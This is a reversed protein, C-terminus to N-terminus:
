RGRFAGSNDNFEGVLKIEPELKINYKKEVESQVLKMLGYIEASSSNGCNIIFNAHKKSIQADGTKYGKLECNEILAGAFKGLPNKFVSGASHLLVPQSKIKDRIYSVITKKINKGERKELQFTTRWLFFNELNSKRYGFNIKEASIQLINLNENDVVEVSIIKGSIWIKKLGANMIVAGGVTGPIGALFELGGINKKIMYKMLYSIKTGSEVTVTEGASLV